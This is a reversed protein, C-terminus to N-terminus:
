DSSCALSPAIEPKLPLLTCYASAAARLACITLACFWCCSAKVRMTAGNEPVMWVTAVCDLSASRESCLPSATVSPWAINVMAASPPYMTLASTSSCSTM